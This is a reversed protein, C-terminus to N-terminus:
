LFSAHSAASQAIQSAFKNAFLPNIAGIVSDLVSDEETSTVGTFDREIPMINQDGNKPYPQIRQGMDMAGQLWKLMNEAEAPKKQALAELDEQRKEVLEEEDALPDKRIPQITDEQQQGPIFIPWTGLPPGSVIAPQDFSALQDTFSQLQKGDRPGSAALEQQLVTSFRQGSIRNEVYKQGSETVKNPRLSEFSINQM